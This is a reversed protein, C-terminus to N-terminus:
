LDSVALDKFGFALWDSSWGSIWRRLLDTVGICLPHSRVSCPRSSHREEDRSNRHICFTRAAQCLVLSQSVSLARASFCMKISYKRRQGADASLCLALCSVRVPVSWQALALVFLATAGMMAM